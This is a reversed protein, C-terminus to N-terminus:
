GEGIIVVPLAEGATYAGNSREQGISAAGAGAADALQRITITRGDTSIDIAPIRGTIANAVRVLNDAPIVALVRFFGLSRATLVEGGAAYSGTFTLLRYRFKLAGLGEARRGSPRSVTVAM